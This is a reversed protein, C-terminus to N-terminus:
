IALSVLKGNRLCWDQYHKKYTANEPDQMLEKHFKYIKENYKNFDECDYGFQDYGSDDYIPIYEVQKELKSIRDLLMNVTAKLERIEKLILNELEPM